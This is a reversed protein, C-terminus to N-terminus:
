CREPVYKAMYIMSILNPRTVNVIKAEEKSIQPLVREFKSAIRLALSVEPSMFYSIYEFLNSNISKM